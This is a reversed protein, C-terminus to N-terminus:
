RAAALMSTVSTDAPPPIRYRKVAGGDIGLLTLTGDAGMAMANPMNDLPSQSYAFAERGDVFIRYAQAGNKAGIMAWTVHESDPTFMV